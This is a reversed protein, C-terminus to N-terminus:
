EDFYFYLDLESGSCDILVGEKTAIIQEISLSFIARRGVVYLYVAKEVKITNSPDFTFYCGNVNCNYKGKLKSPVVIEFEIGQLDAKVMTKQGAHEFELATKNLQIDKCGSLKKLEPETVRSKLFGLLSRFPITNVGKTSHKKWTMDILMQTQEKLSSDQIHHSKKHAIGALKKDLESSKFKHGKIEVPSNELQSTQNENIDSDDHINDIAEFFQEELHRSHHVFSMSTSAIFIVLGFLIYKFPKPLRM